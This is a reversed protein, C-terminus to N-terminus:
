SRTARELETLQESDKTQESVVALAEMITRTDRIILKRLAPQPSRPARRWTL